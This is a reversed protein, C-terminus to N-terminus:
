GISPNQRAAFADGQTKQHNRLDEIESAERIEDALMEPSVRRGTADYFVRMARPINEKILHRLLQQLLTSAAETANECRLKHYYELVLRNAASFKAAELSWRLLMAVAGVTKPHAAGLARDFICLAKKLQAEAQFKSANAHLHEAWTELVEGVKASSPGLVDTTITLALKFYRQVRSTIAFCKQSHQCKKSFHHAAHCYVKALELNKGCEGYLDQRIKLARMLLQEASEFEGDDRQLSALNNLIKAVNTHDPGLKEESIELARSYSQRAELTQGTAHQLEGINNLCEAVDAHAPGQKEMRIRLCSEYMREATRINNLKFAIEGYACLVAAEQLSDAGVSLRFIRTSEDFSECAEKYAGLKADLKGRRFYVEAVKPHETGM